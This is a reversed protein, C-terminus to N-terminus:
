LADFVAIAIDESACRSSNAGKRMLTTLSLAPVTFDFEELVIQLGRVGGKGLAGDVTRGPLRDLLHHAALFEGGATTQLPAHAPSSRSVATIGNPVISPDSLFTPFISTWNKRKM